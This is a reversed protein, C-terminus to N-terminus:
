AADRAATDAWAAWNAPSTSDDRCLRTRPMGDGLAGQAPGHHAALVVEARPREPARLDGREDVRQAFGRTQHIDIRM